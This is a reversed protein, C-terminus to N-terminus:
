RRLTGSAPLGFRWLSSGAKNSRRPGILGLRAGDAVAFVADEWAVGDAVIFVAVAVMPM